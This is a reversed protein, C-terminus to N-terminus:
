GRTEAATARAIAVQRLKKELEVAGQAADNARDDRGIARYILASERCHTLALELNAVYRDLDNVAHVRDARKIYADGSKREILAVNVSLRGFVEAYIAKAQELLRFVEDDDDDNFYDLAEALACMDNAVEHGGTGHLQTHIELARRALAIVEQGTKQNEEPPIGGHQALRFIALALCYAGRAIFPERQDDPIKNDHKHNIIEWLTSAYLVADAYEKNHMSSEILAFAADIAGMDTPKTNWLCYWEKACEMEEGYQGLFSLATCKYCLAESIPDVPRVKLQKLKSVALDCYRLSQSWNHERHFSRAKELHAMGM